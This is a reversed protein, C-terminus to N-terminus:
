SIKIIIKDNSATKIKPNMTPKKKVSGFYSSFDNSVCTPEPIIKPNINVQKIAIVMM